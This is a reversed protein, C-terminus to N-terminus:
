GAKVLALNADELHSLHFNVAEHFDKELSDLTSGFYMSLGDIGLIKGYYCGDAESYEITGEFGKYRLRNSM